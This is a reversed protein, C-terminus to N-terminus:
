AWNHKNYINGRGRLLNVEYLPLHKVIVEITKSYIRSLPPACSQFLALTHKLEIEKAKPIVFKILISIQLLNGSMRLESECNSPSEKQLIFLVIESREARMKVARMGYRIPVTPSCRFM